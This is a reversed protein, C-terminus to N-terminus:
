SRKSAKERMDCIRQECIMYEPNSLLAKREQDDSIALTHPRDVSHIYDGIYHNKALSTWDCNDKTFLQLTLLYDEMFRQGDFYIVSSLDIQELDFMFSHLPAHNNSVFDDHSYGYEFARERQLLVCSEGNYSTSWIRGFAVAKGTNQLRDVLWSYAHSMILDDYDLFTAYRTSVKKISENLMKARLDGHGDQSEYYYVQPECGKAWTFSNLTSKLAKVQAHSLDQAAILPIVNCDQMAFLCYLANELENFDASKHFRIITTVEPKIMNPQESSYAAFVRADTRMQLSKYGSKPAVM